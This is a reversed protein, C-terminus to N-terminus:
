DFEAQVCTQQKVSQGITRGAAALQDNLTAKVYVLYPKISENGPTFKHLRALPPHDDQGEQANSPNNNEGAYLDLHFLLICKSLWKHADKPKHEVASMIPPKNGVNARAVEVCCWYEQNTRFIPARLRLVQCGQDVFSAAVDDLVELPVFHHLDWTILLAKEDTIDLPNAFGSSLLKRLCRCQMGM